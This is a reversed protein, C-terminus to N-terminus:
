FHYAFQAIIRNNDTDDPNEHRIDYILRVKAAETLGFTLQPSYRREETTDDPNSEGYAFLLEIDKFYKLNMPWTYAGLVYFGSGEIDGTASEKSRFMYEGLMDFNGLKWAGDFGVLDVDYTDDTDWKGHAYSSGARFKGWETEISNHINIAPIINNNDVTDTGDGFTEANNGNFAAVTLISEFDVPIKYSLEIGEDTWNEHGFFGERMASPTVTRRDFFGTRNEPGFNVWFKGAKVVSQIEEFKLKGYAQEIEVEEGHHKTFVAFAELWDTLDAGIGIEAEHLFFKQEGEDVNLYRFDLGGHVHIDHIDMHHHTHGIAIDFGHDHSHGMHEHDHAALAEPDKREYQELKAELEIVRAKLAQMETKLDEYEGAYAPLLMGWHMFLLTVIFCIMM